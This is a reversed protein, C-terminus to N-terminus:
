IVSMVEVAQFRILGYRVADDITKSTGPIQGTLKVRKHTLIMRLIPGLPERIRDLREEYLEKLSFVVNFLIDDLDTSDINVDEIVVELEELTNEDASDSLTTQLGDLAIIFTFKSFNWGHNKVLQELNRTPTINRKDYEEINRLNRLDADDLVQHLMWLGVSYESYYEKESLAELQEKLEESEASQIALSKFESLLRSKGTGAGSLVFYLSIDSKDRSGAKRCDFHETVSTKLTVVLSLNPQYVWDSGLRYVLARPERFRM